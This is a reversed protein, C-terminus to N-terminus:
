QYHNYYTCYQIIVKSISILVEIAIDAGQTYTLLDLMLKLDRGMDDLAVEKFDIDGGVLEVDDNGTNKQEDKAKIKSTDGTGLIIARKMKCNKVLERTFRGPIPLIHRLPRLMLRDSALWCLALIGAVIYFFCLFAAIFMAGSYLTSPHGVCEYYYSHINCIFETPSCDM